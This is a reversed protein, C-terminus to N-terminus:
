PTADTVALPTHQLVEVLGVVLLLLVVSPVPVPVRVLLMVSCCIIFVLHYAEELVLVLVCMVM